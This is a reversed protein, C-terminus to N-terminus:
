VLAMPPSRAGGPHRKHLKGAHMTNNHAAPSITQSAVALTTPALADPAGLWFSACTVACACLCAHSGTDTPLEDPVAVLQAGEWTCIVMQGVRVPVSSSALLDSLSGYMSMFLVLALRFVAQRNVPLVRM